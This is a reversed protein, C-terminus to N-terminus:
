QIITKMEGKWKTTMKEMLSPSSLSRQISMYQADAKLVVSKFSYIQMIGEEEDREDKKLIVASM